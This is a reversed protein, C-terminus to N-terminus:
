MTAQLLSCHALRGLVVAGVRVVALVVVVVMHVPGVAAVLGDLVAVVDVIHDAAVQVVRVTVVAVVV